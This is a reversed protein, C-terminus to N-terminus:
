VTSEFFFAACCLGHGVDLVVRMDNGEDVSILRLRSCGFWVCSVDWTSRTTVPSKGRM